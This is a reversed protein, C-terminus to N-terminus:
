ASEIDVLVIEPMYNKDAWKKMEEAYWKECNQIAIGTNSYTLNGMTELVQNNEADRIEIRARM